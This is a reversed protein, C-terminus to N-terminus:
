LRDRVTLTSTWALLMFRTNGCTLRALSNQTRLTSASPELGKVEM